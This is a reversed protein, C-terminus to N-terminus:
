DAPVRLGRVIHDLLRKASKSKAGNSLTITGHNFGDMVGFATSGTSPEFTYDVDHGVNENEPHAPFAAHIRVCNMNATSLRVTGDSGDENALASIGSYGTNGVLVTCLVNGPRYMEGGKGFRDRMALDWSYPSALELGKLIHTGTQFSSGEPKKAIFGKFVRGMFSRGKHALPSGFNAPALMVLNRIPARAPKYHRTLWDRIVLGGTSHVVADVAGKGVPLRHDRWAREMATSLDDFRVEDEMSLYDGLSIISVSTSLREELMKALREFSKSIDSWGHVIVLPREAM